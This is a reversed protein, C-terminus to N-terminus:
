SKLSEREQNSERKQNRLSSVLSTAPYFFVKAVGLKAISDYDHDNARNAGIRDEFELKIM